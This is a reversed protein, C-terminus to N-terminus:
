LLKELNLASVIPTTISIHIFYGPPGVQILPASKCPLHYSLGLFFTIAGYPQNKPPAQEPPESRFFPKSPPNTPAILLV